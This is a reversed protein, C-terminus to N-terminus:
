VIGFAGMERGTTVTRAKSCGLESRDRRSAGSTDRQGHGRTESVSTTPSFICRGAGGSPNAAVMQLWRISPPCSGFTRMGAYQPM